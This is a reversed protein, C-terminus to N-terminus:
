IYNVIGDHIYELVLDEIKLSSIILIYAEGLLRMKIPINAKYRLNKEGRHCPHTPTNWFIIRTQDLNVECGHADDKM